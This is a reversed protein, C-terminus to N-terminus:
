DREIRLTTEGAPITTGFDRLAANLRGRLPEAKTRMILEACLRADPEADQTIASVGGFREPEAGRLIDLAIVLEIESRVTDTLLRGGAWVWEAPYSERLRRALTRGARDLEPTPLDSALAYAGVYEALAAEFPFVETFLHM